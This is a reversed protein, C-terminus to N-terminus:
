RARVFYAWGDRVSLVEDSAGQPQPTLWRLLAGTRSSLLALRDGGRGAKAPTLSAVFAAPVPGAAM